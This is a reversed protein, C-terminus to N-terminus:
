FTFESSAGIVTKTFENHGCKNKITKEEQGRLLSESRVM